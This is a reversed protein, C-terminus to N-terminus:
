LFRELTGVLVDAIVKGGSVFCSIEVHSYNKGDKNSFELNFLVYTLGGQNGSSEYVTLSRFEAEREIEPVLGNKRYYDFARIAAVAANQYNMKM